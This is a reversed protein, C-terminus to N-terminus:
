MLLLLVFFIIIILSLTSVVTVVMHEKIWTFVKESMPPDPILSQTIATKFEIATQFRKAPDKETAKWLVKMLKAPINSDNPLPEKLQKSLTEAESETDFPNKGTLLEYFTIGLEYIDTAASITASTNGEDRKIQEPAAYQPTGIFGAMSFKNGGNMRSIGLDMLRVNSDNEIMINSPKIDRHVVGKSHIYDLADLIACIVKCVKDVRHQNDGFRKVYDDVNEGQVYNSLIFIPGHEPAWECYGIMEVLNPHRFALSAELRARERIMKNNAYVDKVRKIAVAAGNSCRYGKYVDGMAGSGLPPDSRNYCYWEGMVFLYLYPDNPREVVTRKVQQAM